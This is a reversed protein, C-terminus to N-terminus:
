KSPHSGGLVHHEHSEKTALLLLGDKGALWVESLLLQGNIKDFVLEPDKDNDHRGLQTIVPLMVNEPGTLTVRGGPGSSVEVSYKGAPMAKGAAMFKFGIDVVARDQAQAIAGGVVAAAVVTALLLRLTQRM